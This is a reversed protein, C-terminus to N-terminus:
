ISGIMKNLDRPLMVQGRLSGLRHLLAENPVTFVDVELVCRNRVLDLNGRYDTKPKESVSIFLASLQSKQFEEAYSYITITDNGTDNSKWDWYEKSPSTETASLHLDCDIKETGASESASVTPYTKLRFGHQHYHQAFCLQWTNYFAYGEGSLKIPINENIITSKFATYQGSLDNDNVCLKASIFEQDVIFHSAMQPENENKIGSESEIYVAPLDTTPIKKLKELEGMSMFELVSVLLLLVVLLTLLKYVFPVTTSATKKSGM